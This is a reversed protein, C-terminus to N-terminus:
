YRHIKRMERTHLKRSELYKRRRKWFSMGEFFDWTGYIYELIDQIAENLRQKNGCEDQPIEGVSVIALGGAGNDEPAYRKYNIIPARQLKGADGSMLSGSIERIYLFKM